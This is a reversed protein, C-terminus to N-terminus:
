NKKENSDKVDCGWMGDTSSERCYVMRRKAPCVDKSRRNEQRKIIAIINQWYYNGEWLAREIDRNETRLTQGRRPM